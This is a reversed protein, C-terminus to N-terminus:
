KFLESLRGPRPQEEAKDFAGSAVYLHTTIGEACQRSELGHIGRRSYVVMNVARSRGRGRQYPDGRGPERFDVGPALVLVGDARVRVPPLDGRQRTVMRSFINV